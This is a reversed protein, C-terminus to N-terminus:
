KSAMPQFEVEKFVWIERRGRLGFWGRIGKARGMPVSADLRYNHTTFVKMLNSLTSLMDSDENRPLFLPVPTPTFGYAM